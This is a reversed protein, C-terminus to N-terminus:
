SSKLAVMTIVWNQPGPLAATVSYAGASTTFGKASALFLTGAGQTNLQTYVVTGSWSTPFGGTNFVFALLLDSATGANDTAAASNTVGNDGGSGYGDNTIPGCAPALEYAQAVWNAAGTAINGTINTISAAPTGLFLHINLVGTSDPWFTLQALAPNTITTPWIGNVGVAVLVSNGATTPHLFGFNIAPTPGDSNISQVITPACNGGGGGGGGGGGSGGGRSGGAASSSSSSSGGTSSTKSGTPGYEHDGCGGLLVGGLSIGCVGLMDRRNLVSEPQRSGENGPGRGASKPRPM